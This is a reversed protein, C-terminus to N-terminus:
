LTRKDTIFMFLPHHRCRGRVVDLDGKIFTLQEDRQWGMINAEKIQKGELTTEGCVTILTAAGDLKPM